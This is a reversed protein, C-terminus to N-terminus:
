GSKRHGYWLRRIKNRKIGEPSIRPDPPVLLQWRISALGMDLESLIM